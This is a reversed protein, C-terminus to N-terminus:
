FVKKILELLINEQSDWSYQKAFKEFETHTNICPSNLLQELGLAWEEPSEQNVFQFLNPFKSAVELQGDTKTALIKIGAQIYQLVKNTVTKNRSEPYKQELALGITHQSILSLLQDHDVPKNIYLKHGRNFPFSKKLFDEYELACNGILYLEVMTSVLGLAILLTEIGRGAGITQSFWVLSPLARPKLNTITSNESLPFGNYLVKIERKTNYKQQLALAMAHSPCTIYSGYKISFKELQNLLKIPREPVLYDQSYWDEFDFAVKKNKRILYNGILMGYETHAIYLNANEKFAKRKFMNYGFGLAINTDINLKKKIEKGIRGQLRYCFRKLLSSESPILNIAAKYIINSNQILAFDKDRRESSTWITLIVIRYGAKALSNAEKWTRPNSSLHVSSIICIDKM